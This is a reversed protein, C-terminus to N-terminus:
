LSGYVSLVSETFIFSNDVIKRTGKLYALYGNKESNFIRSSLCLRGSGTSRLIMFMPENLKDLKILQDETYIFFSKLQTIDDLAM